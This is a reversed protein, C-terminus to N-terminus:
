FVDDMESKSAVSRFVNLIGAFTVAGVVTHDEEVVWVCNVRHSLAQVMVALLSSRRSCVIPECRIGVNHRSSGRSRSSVSEDDSSCSSLSSSSMSRTFENMMDAMSGLNMEELRTKVLCVLNEPPSGCEIYTMLDMASLAMIASAVTEDCKALASHSIEGILRNEVDVVAVSKQETIARYFYDLASSAPKNYNITMIDREIVNLSEISFAHFPSFAGISNLLFRVVDEQTLWCCEYGTYGSCSAQRNIFRKRTNNIRRNQIPIVLNQTGELMYDIAELM